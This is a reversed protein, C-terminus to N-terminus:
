NLATVSALNDDYMAVFHVIKDLRVASVLHM